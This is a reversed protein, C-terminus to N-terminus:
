WIDDMQDKLILVIALSVQGLLGAIWLGTSRSALETVLSVVFWLSFAVEQVGYLEAKRWLKILYWVCVMPPLIIAQRVWWLQFFPSYIPNM